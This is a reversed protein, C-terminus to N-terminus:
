PASRHDFVPMEDAALLDGALRPSGGVDELRHVARHAGMDREGGLGLNAGRDLVRLRRLRGPRRDIRLAAGADQHLEDVEDGLVVVLEGVRQRALVALRDGVGLAVNLAADLHDFEREANRMQHLAFIGVAGAGADVEIRHALREADDGADRREIERRHDRKHFSAGAIAQPLAKM